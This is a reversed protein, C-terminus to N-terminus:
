ISDAEKQPPQADKTIFVAFPPDGTRNPFGCQVVTYYRSDLASIYELLADRESYGNAGGYYICLSLLGGIKLLALSAELAAISSEVRTFIEHNGKPLWGFNFVIVSVTGDQAYQRLNAHSDLHLEATYGQTELLRCTSEIAESQIDFALVTGEAGTLACLLATDYGRGATADICLDGAQIHKRLVMHTIDLAGLQRQPKPKQNM